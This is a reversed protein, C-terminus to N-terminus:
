DVKSVEIEKYNTVEYGELIKASVWEARTKYKEKSGPVPTSDLYVSASEWTTYDDLIAMFSGEKKGPKGMETIIFQKM